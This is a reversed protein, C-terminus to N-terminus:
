KESIIILMYIHTKKQLGSPAQTFYLFNKLKLEFCM